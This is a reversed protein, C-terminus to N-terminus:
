MPRCEYTDFYIPNTPSYYGSVDVHVALEGARCVCGSTRPNRVICNQVYNGGQMQRVVYREYSSRTDSRRWVGSQCSLILGEENRGILGNPSCEEGEVAIGQLLLHEGGTLRGAASFDGSTTDLSAVEVHTNQDVWRMRGSDNEMRISRGNAATFHIANDAMHLDTAMQNLEPRGPVQHRYLYDELMGADSYFLGATIHGAGPSGGFSSMAVQWGGANGIATDPDSSRIAGGARIKGAIRLLHRDPIARGGETVVLPELVNRANSGSGQTVYRVRVSYSQGYSNLDAVNASLYGAEKLTSLPISEAAGNLPLAATLTGFNDAVYQAAASSVKEMHEAAENIAATERYDALWTATGKGVLVVLALVGLMEWMSFGRESNRRIESQHILELFRTIYTM